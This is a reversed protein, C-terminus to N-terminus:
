FILIKQENNKVRLIRRTKRCSLQGIFRKFINFLIDLFDSFIRTYVKFM